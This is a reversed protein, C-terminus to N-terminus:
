GLCYATKSFPKFQEVGMSNWNWGYTFNIGVTGNFATVRFRYTDRTFLIFRNGIRYFINNNISLNIQLM